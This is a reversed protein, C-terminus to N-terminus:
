FTFQMVPVFQTHEHGPFDYFSQQGFGLSFRMPYAVSATDGGSWGGPRTYTVVFNTTINDYAHFSRGSSWAGSASISWYRRFSADIGFRPRLTQAIAYQLNAIRWARLFEAAGQVRIHLGFRREIGAYSITQYYETYASYDSSQSPTNLLDRGNYGTILATRGWPRGVRFDVAGSFDRSRLFSETFPGTEHILNGSFSLWDAIPSSAVYVFQRFLNQNMFQPSRTDRRITYQLGPMISFKVDGLQVRPAVSVNFITDWTNRPQILLESPFSLTGQANREAVFGQVPLFAKPHFQFRANAFTEISRRPPPLFSAGNRGLGLLRADLQYINEDEFVPDVRVGSGLGIHEFIPRGQEEALEMEADRTGPDDPDLQHARAFNALAMDDRGLQRYVNGQSIIYEYNDNLDPEAQLSALQLQASRTNGLALEANAMGVAVSTEDAGVAQARGYLRQALGYQHISMMISAANLYDDATTIDTSAVKAEALGMAVQQQAEASRGEEAFLQGLALRVQLRNQDSSELARAYVAMAQDRRNLLRLADAAVLLVKYDEGGTREATEIAQLADSTRGLKAYSRGLQALIMPNGPSVTLATQLTVASSAYKHARYQVDALATYTTLSSPNLKLASKYEREAPTLMSRQRYAEAKVLHLAESEPLLRSAAEAEKLAATASRLQVLAFALGLHAEGYQPNLQLAKRFDAEAKTALRMDNYVYGRNMYGVAMTPDIELAHSFDRVAAEYQGHRANVYGSILFLDRDKPLVPEFRDVINMADDIRNLFLLDYALYDAAERDKPLKEIVQYGLKASEAYEGTMTLFREQERMVQPNQRVTESGKALWEKAQDTHHAELAANMAGSVILPHDPSRKFAQEYSNQAEQFQRNESYMDGLALYPVYDDPHKKALELFYGRAAELDGMERSLFGLAGLASANSPDIALAKQYTKRADDNRDTRRLLNAYNLLLVVNRPELQLAETLDKEAAGANGQSLEIVARLRLFEPRSVGAMNIANIAFAADKTVREANANDESDRYVDALDVRLSIPYLVGEPVGDPLHRLAAEYEQIAKQNQHQAADLRGRLAYMRYHEPDLTAAHDLLTATKAFEGANLTAQAANLQISIDKPARDAAAIYNAAAAHANGALTYSYGLEALTNTDKARVSELVKIATEYDGTDRYYSAVARLVEPNSPASNRARELMRHSAEGNGTRDYARALLLETRWTPKIAESRQLFDLARKPDTPLLLEGALQLDSDSRPNAALVLDLTKQAEETNGMRAYTQALGSLGQVSSPKLALGKQYADVSVSYQGALRAAYALTFWLDSNQPASKVARQAHAMADRPDGHDLAAQAARAERAVGIGSGWGMGTESSQPATSHPATGKKHPASAKSGQGNVDFTQASATAALGLILWLANRFASRGM